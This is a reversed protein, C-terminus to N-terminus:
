KRERERVKERERERDRFLPMCYLCKRERVKERETELYLCATSVSERERV